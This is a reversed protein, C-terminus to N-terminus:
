GKTSDLAEGMKMFPKVLEMPLPFVITNTKDGAIETLTQLYALQIASPSQQLLSSADALKQARQLEGEAAIVKARRERESEAERAMARQMEKPLDIQKVEVMVVKIGWSETHKDLIAQLSQNVKDRHELIDDLHYQGVVSRLTTQALQSTAFFYDEVKTIADEPAVVKFYVVANVQMSVNDKTIIDQPKVDMTITRTDVKLIREVGPILIILGPGRIGISRGFRLIVGREWEPLIKVTATLLVIAVVAIFILFEV